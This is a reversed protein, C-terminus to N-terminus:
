LGETEIVMGFGKHFSKSSDDSLFYKTTEVIWVNDRCYVYVGKDSLEICIGQIYDGEYYDKNKSRCLDFTYQEVHQIRHFM